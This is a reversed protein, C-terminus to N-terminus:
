KILCRAQAVPEKKKLNSLLGKMERSLHAEEPRSVIPTLTGDYDLFLFIHKAERLRELIKRIRDFVYEV